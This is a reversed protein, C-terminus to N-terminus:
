NFSWSGSYIYPLDNFLLPTSPVSVSTPGIDRPTTSSGSLFYRESGDVYIIDGDNDLSEIKGGLQNTSLETFQGQPNARWVQLVGTNPDPRLLAIWGNAIRYYVGNGATNVTAYAMDTILNHSTGTGDVLVVTGPRSNVPDQNIYLVNTGDTVPSVNVTGGGDQAIVKTTGNPLYLKLSGSASDKEVVTGNASVSNDYIGTFGVYDLNYSLGASVDRLYLTRLAPTFVNTWLVFNGNVAVNDNVAGINLLQGNEWSALTLYALAPNTSSVANPFSFVAGTSTLRMNGLGVGGITQPLNYILTDNSTSRNRIYLKSGTSDLYLIRTADMDMITGPVSSTTTLQSNVLITDIVNTTQNVTDVASLTLNIPSTTTPLSLTTNANSGTIGSVVTGNILASISCGYDDTCSLNLPVQPPLMGAVNTSIAATVNIPSSAIVTPPRDLVVNQVVTIAQGSGNTINLTLPYTGSALSSLDVINYSGSSVAGRYGTLPVTLSGITLTGLQGSATSPMSFTASVPMSNGVYQASPSYMAPYNFNSVASSGISLHGFSWGAPIASVSTPQPNTPANPNAPSIPAPPLAPAPVACSDDAAAHAPWQRYPDIADSDTCPQAVPKSISQSGAFTDCWRGIWWWLRCHDLVPRANIAGWYISTVENKHSVEM